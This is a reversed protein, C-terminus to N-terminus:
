LNSCFVFVNVVRVSQSAGEMFEPGMSGSVIVFFKKEDEILLNDVLNKYEGISTFFHCQKFMEKLDSQYKSNEKNNVNSDLWV